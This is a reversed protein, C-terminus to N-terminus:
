LTDSSHTGQLNEFIGAAGMGGGICMTVMGYRSSRRGMEHVLHLTLKAGTCGLPHGLAIAGGNVNVRAPDLGLEQIVPVAQAAFAENLEILDMQALTLGTRELLRPVAAVPGIGMIEPRVGAVAYGVFRALPQFGLRAATAAEMVILAAAGDSLPSSNGATVLGDEKFASKLGALGSITTERRLHEDKDAVRRVHTLTGDGATVEEDVELPVVEQAFYGADLAAAAKRHSHYAFEDMADRTVGRETALIEATLGMNMYAGPYAEQVAPNPEWTFGGRKILSMSEAGGAILIDAEGTMIRQAAIAIAQLGSACLRNVTMGAVALPLGSRLAVIRGMNNGQSAEPYACGLVVDEVQAPDLRERHAHLLHRIVHATMEDSRVQRLLGKHSKGIATRGGAVIVAERM